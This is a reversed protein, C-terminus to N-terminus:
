TSPVGSLARRGAPGDRGAVLYGAVPFAVVLVLLDPVDGAVLLLYTAVLAPVAAARREALLVATLWIGLFGASAYYYTYSLPDLVLRVVLVLLPVAWVATTGGRRRAVLAAVAGALAAAGGQLLRFAWGVEELGAIVAIPAGPNVGWVYEGTRVTGLLHFPGFLAAVALGASGLGVAVGLGSPALLLVPVGLLGWTEVGAAAAVLVGAVVASGRVASGAALVWLLPVWVHASHGSLFSESPLGLLLVALSAGLEVAPVAPREFTRCVLRYVAIAGFGAAAYTIVSLIAAVAIGTSEAAVAAVASLLLLLPGAQVSPDAFTSRWEPSLMTRGADVFIHWDATPHGVDLLAALVTAVGVVLLRHEVVRRPVPLRPRHM